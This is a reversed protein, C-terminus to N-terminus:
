SATIPRWLWLSKKWISLIGSAYFFVIVVSWGEVWCEEKNIFGLVFFIGL